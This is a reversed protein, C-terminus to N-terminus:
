KEGKAADFGRERVEIFRVCEMAVDLYDSTPDKRVEQGPVYVAWVGARLGYPLMFWHRRCMFMKPPVVVPCDTAHCTHESM